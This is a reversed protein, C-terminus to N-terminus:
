FLNAFVEKQFNTCVQPVQTYRGALLARIKVMLEQYTPNRLANMATLFAWSLAGQAKGGITADASTQEPRCGAFQLITGKTIENNQGIQWQDEDDDPTGDPRIAAAHPKWGAAQADAPNGSANGPTAPTVNNMSPTIPMSYNPQQPIFQAAGSGLLASLLSGFGKDNQGAPINIVQGIQLNNVDVGPNVATLAEVSPAKGQQVLNYFTDGPVITYTVANAVGRTGVPGKGPLNIVQGIQLNEPKVQPNAAILAEVNPAKGEQALKYFTDGAKITYTNSSDPGGITPMERTAHAENLNIVQGPMLAEPVIGPNAKMLVEVSPAMGKQVLGYLTDGPQITYCKSAQFAHADDTVLDRGGNTKFQFGQAQLQQMLQDISGNWVANSNIINQGVGSNNDVEMIGAKNPYTVFTFPLNMVTGSHCSDFITTLQCGAPLPDAMIKKLDVDTIQGARQFDLPIITEMPGAPGRTKQTILLLFSYM